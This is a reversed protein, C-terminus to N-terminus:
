VLILRLVECPWNGQQFHVGSLRCLVSCPIGYLNETSTSNRPCPHAAEDLVHTAPSAGNRM